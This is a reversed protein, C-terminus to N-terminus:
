ATGSRGPGAPSRRSVRRCGCGIGDLLYRLGDRVATADHLAALQDALGAVPVAEPTCGERAAELTAFGLTYTHIAAYARRVALEDGIAARLVGVM